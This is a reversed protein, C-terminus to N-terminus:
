LVTKLNTSQNELEALDKKLKLIRRQVASDRNLKNYKDVINNFKNFIIHANEMSFYLNHNHSDTYKPNYTKLENWFKNFVDVPYDENTM